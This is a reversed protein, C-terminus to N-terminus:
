VTSTFFTLTTEQPQGTADTWDLVLTGPGQYVWTTPASSGPPTPTQNGSTWAAGAPLSITVPLGMVLGVSMTPTGSTLVISGNTQPQSPAIPLVPPPALVAAAGAGVVAGGVLGVGVAMLKEKGGLFYGAVGGLVGGVVAANM